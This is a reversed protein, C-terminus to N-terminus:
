GTVITEPKETWKIAFGNAYRMDISIAQFLNISRQSLVFKSFRNLKEDVNKKGLMVVPGNVLKFQWTRRETLTLAAIGLNQRSLRSKILEYKELVMRHSDPPGKLVPLGAPFSDPAPSFVEAESNILAKDGWEAVPEQETIYVILRDPWVRRVAVKNVWAEQTTIGHKINDVNVNFFGGRIINAASEKLEGPSLHIFDGEVRVYKIPLAEPRSIKLWFFVALSFLIAIMLTGVLYKYDFTFDAGPKMEIDVGTQLLPQKM